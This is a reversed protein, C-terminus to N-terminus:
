CRRGYTQYGLEVGCSCHSSGMPSILRPFSSTAIATKHKQSIISSGILFNRRILRKPGWGRNFNVSALERLKKFPPVAARLEPGIEEEVNKQDLVPSSNVSLLMYVPIAKRMVGGHYWTLLFGASLNRASEDIALEEHADESGEPREEIPTRM